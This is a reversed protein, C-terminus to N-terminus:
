EEELETLGVIVIVDNVNTGTPGTYILDQLGAFFHHSDNNESFREIEIM